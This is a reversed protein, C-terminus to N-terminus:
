VVASIAAHQDKITFYLHGSAPRTLRSVEGSVRLHAFGQELMQKIRATLETVSLPAKSM